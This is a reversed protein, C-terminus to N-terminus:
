AVLDAHDEVLLAVNRPQCVTAFQKIRNILTREDADALRLVVAAIDAAELASKLTPAFAADAVVPTILMLRPQPRPEARKPRSAMGDPHQALGAPNRRTGARRSSRTCSVAHPDSGHGEAGQLRAAGCAARRDDRVLTERESIAEFQDDAVRLALDM